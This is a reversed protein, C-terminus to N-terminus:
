KILEEYQLIIITRIVMKRRIASIVFHVALQLYQNLIRAKLEWIKM